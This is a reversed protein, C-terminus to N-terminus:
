YGTFLHNIFQMAKSGNMNNMDKRAFQTCIIM